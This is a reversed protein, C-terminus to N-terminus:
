KADREESGVDVRASAAELATQEKDVRDYLHPDYPIQDRKESVRTLVVMDPRSDDVVWEQGPKATPIRIRKKDDVTAITM